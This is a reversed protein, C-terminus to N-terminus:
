KFIVFYIKQAPNKSLFFHIGAKAPMVTSSKKHIKL